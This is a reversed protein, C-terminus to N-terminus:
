APVFRQNVVARRSFSDFEYGFTEIDTRYITKVKDIAAPSYVDVYSDRSSKNTHALKTDLNLRQTILDFDSSITEFYALYDLLANGKADTLFEIQPQLHIHLKLRDQDLWDLVFHNFDSYAALHTEAWHADKENWGGGKLYSYASYLRDWPNRVFAFKFYEDFLKRGYIVRYDIARYHYPLEGFLSKAVSTGATKTIHIFICRHQDFSRLSFDGKPSPHVVTRLKKYDSLHRYKYIRKRTEESFVSNYLTRLQSNSM